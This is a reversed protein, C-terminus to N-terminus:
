RESEGAEDAREMGPLLPSFDTTMSTSSDITQQRQSPRSTNGAFNQGFTEGSTVAFIYGFDSTAAQSQYYINHMRFWDDSVELGSVADFIRCMECPIDMLGTDRDHSLM